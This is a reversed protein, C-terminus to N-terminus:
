TGSRTLLMGSNLKRAWYDRISRLSCVAGFPPLRSQVDAAATAAGDTVGGGGGGGGGGGCCCCCCLAVGSLSKGAPARWHPPQGTESQSSAPAASRCSWALRPAVRRGRDPSSPQSPPPRSVSAPTAETPFRLAPHHRVPQLHLPPLPRSVSAPSNAATMVRLSSLHRRDHCPPQRSVSAATVRLNPHYHDTCPPQLRLPPRSEFASTAVTPARLSGSVFYKRLWKGTVSCRGCGRLYLPARPCVEPCTRGRPARPRGAVSNLLDAKVIIDRAGVWGVQGTGSGVLRRGCNRM